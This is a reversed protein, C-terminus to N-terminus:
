RSETAPFALFFSLRWTHPYVSDAVPSALTMTSWFPCDRSQVAAPFAFLIASYHFLYSLKEEGRVAYIEVCV